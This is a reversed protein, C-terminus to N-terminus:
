NGIEICTNSSRNSDGALLRPLNNRKTDIAFIAYSGPWDGLQVSKSEGGHLIYTTWGHQVANMIQLQEEQDWYAVSFNRIEINDSSRNCLIFTKNQPLSLKDLEQSANAVDATSAQEKSSALQSQLTHFRVTLATLCMASLTFVGVAVARDFRKFAQM